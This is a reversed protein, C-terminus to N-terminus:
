AATVDRSIVRPHPPAPQAHVIWYKHFASIMDKFESLNVPKTLFSNAGLEYALRIDYIDSSMTLVIVVLDKWVPNSKVRRLVYFGDHVPMKLDLLMVTPLPQIELYRIAEDAGSCTEVPNQVGLQDFTRTLLQLDDPSDDVLLIAGTSGM